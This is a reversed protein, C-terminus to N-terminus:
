NKDKKLGLALGAALLLGGAAPYVAILSNTTGFIDLVGKFVSGVALTLVGSDWLQLAFRMPLRAERRALVVYPLVGLTLPLAFAYIMYYSYVEHGFLEYVAGFFALFLTWGLQWLARRLWVREVSTSM